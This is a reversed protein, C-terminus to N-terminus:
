WLYQWLHGPQGSRPRGYLPGSQPYVRGDSAMSDPVDNVALAPCRKFPVTTM